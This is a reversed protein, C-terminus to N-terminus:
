RAQLLVLIRSRVCKLTKDNAVVNRMQAISGRMQECDAQTPFTMTTLQGNPNMILLVWLAVVNM